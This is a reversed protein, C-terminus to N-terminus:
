RGSISQSRQWHRVRSEKYGDSLSLKIKQGIVKSYNFTVAQRFVKNQKM